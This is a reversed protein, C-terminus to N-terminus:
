GLFRTIFYVIVSVGIGAITRWTWKQNEKIENIDRENEESKALAITAKSAIEDVGKTNEEIRVLRQLIEM